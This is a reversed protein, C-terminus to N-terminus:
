CVVVFVASVSLTRNIVVTASTRFHYALIHGLSTHTVTLPVGPLYHENAHKRLAELVIKALPQVRDQRRLRLIFNSWFCVSEKRQQLCYGHM